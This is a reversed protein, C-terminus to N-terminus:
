LLQHDDNKDDSENSISNELIDELNNLNQDKSKPSDQENSCVLLMTSKKTREFLM